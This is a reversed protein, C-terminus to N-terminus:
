WTLKKKALTEETGATFVMYKAYLDCNWLDSVDWNLNHLIGNPGNYEASDGLLTNVAPVATFNSIEAKCDYVV